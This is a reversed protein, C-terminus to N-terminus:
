HSSCFYIRTESWDNLIFVKDVGRWGMVESSRLADQCIDTAHFPGMMGNKRWCCLLVPFLTLPLHTDSLTLKAFRKEQQNSYHTTDLFSATHRQSYQQWEQTLEHGLSM